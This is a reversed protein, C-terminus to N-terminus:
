PSVFIFRKVCLKETEGNGSKGLVVKHGSEILHSAIKSGHRPIGLVSIKSACLTEDQSHFHEGTFSHTWQRVDRPWSRVKTGRNGSM